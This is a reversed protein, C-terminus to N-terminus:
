KVTYCKVGTISSGNNKEDCESVGGQGTGDDDVNAWFSFPGEQGKPVSYSVKVLESNGPLLPKQTTATGVLKSTAGV